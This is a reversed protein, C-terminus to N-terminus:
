NSQTQTAAATIWFYVQNHKSSQQSESIWLYGLTRIPGAFDESDAEPKRQFVIRKWLSMHAESKVLSFRENNEKWFVM